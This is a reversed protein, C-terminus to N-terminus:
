FPYVDMPDTVYPVMLEVMGIPVFLFIQKISSNIHIIKAKHQRLIEPPLRFRWSSDKSMMMM